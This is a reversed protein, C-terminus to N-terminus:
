LEASATIGAFVWQGYSGNTSVAEPSTGRTSTYNFVMTAASGGDDQGSKTMTPTARMTTPFMLASGTGDTGTGYGYGQVFWTGCDIYYRQCLSLEITPPRFEFTTVVTGEELQVGTVKGGAPLAWELDLVLNNANINATIVFTATVRTWTTTVPIPKTLDINVSDAGSAHANRWTVNLNSSSSSTGKVWMSLTYSQGVKFPAYDGQRTLEVNTGVAHSGNTNNFLSYTFGQASPVDTSREITGSSAGSNNYVWFRDANFYAGGNNYLWSSGRQWMQMDGNIIKNKFSLHPTYGVGDIVPATLAVPNNISNTKIRSLPM